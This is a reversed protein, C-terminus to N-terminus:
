VCSNNNNLQETTDSEKCGWPSCCAPSGQGEHLLTYIKMSSEGNTEGAGGGGSGRRHRWQQGACLSMLVMKRSEM